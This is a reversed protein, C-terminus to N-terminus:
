RAEALRRKALDAVEHAERCGWLTLDRWENRFGILFEENARKQIYEWNPDCGAAIVERCAKQGARYRPTTIEVEVLTKM